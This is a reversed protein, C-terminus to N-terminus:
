TPLLRFPLPMPRLTIRSINMISRAQEPTAYEPVGPLQKILAAIEPAMAAKAYDPLDLAEIRDILYKLSPASISQTNAGGGFSMGGLNPADPMNFYTPQQLARLEGALSAIDPSAYADKFDASKPLQDLIAQINPAAPLSPIDPYTTMASQYAALNNTGLNTYPTLLASNAAAQAATMGGATMLATNRADNAANAGLLGAGSTIISSLPSNNGSILYQGFANWDFGPQSVIANYDADSLVSGSNYYM